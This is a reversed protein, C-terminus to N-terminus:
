RLPPLQHAAEVIECHVDGRVAVFGSGILGGVEADRQEVLEVVVEGAVDGERADFCAVCDGQPDDVAVGDVGELRCWSEGEDGGLLAAALGAATAPRPV